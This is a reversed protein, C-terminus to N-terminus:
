ESATLPGSKEFLFLVQAGVGGDLPDFDPVEVSDKERLREVWATVLAVHPQRLMASRRERISADRMSKASDDDFIGDKM